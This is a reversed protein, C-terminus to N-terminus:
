GNMIEKASEVTFSKNPNIVYGEEVLKTAVKEANDKALIEKTFETDARLKILENIVIFTYLGLFIVGILELINLIILILIM